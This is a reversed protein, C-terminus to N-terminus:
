LLLWYAAQFPNLRTAAQSAQLAAGPSDGELLLERGVLYHYAANGPQLQAAKELSPLNMTDALSAARFVLGATALYFAAASLVLGLCLTKRAPTKLSILM